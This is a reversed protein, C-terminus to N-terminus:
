KVIRLIGAEQLDLIHNELAECAVEYKRQAICRTEWSDADRFRQEDQRAAELTAARSNKVRTLYERQDYM